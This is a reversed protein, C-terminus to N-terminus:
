VDLDWGVGRRVDVLVQLLYRHGHELRARRPVFLYSRLAILDKSVRITLLLILLLIVVLLMVVSLAVMLESTAVPIASLVILETLLYLLWFLLFQNLSLVLRRPFHYVVVLARKHVRGLRGM